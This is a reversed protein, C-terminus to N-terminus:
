PAKLIATCFRRSDSFSSGSRISREMCTAMDVRVAADPELASEETGGGTAVHQGEDTVSVWVEEAGAAAEDDATEAAPATGPSAGEPDGPTATASARARAAAERELLMARTAGLDENGLRLPEARATEFAKVGAPTEGRIAEDGKAAKKEAKTSSAEVRCVSAGDPCDSTLLSQAAAPSFALPVSAAVVGLAPASLISLAASSFRSRPPRHRM